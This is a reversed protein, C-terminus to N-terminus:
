KELSYNLNNKQLGTEIEKVLQGSALDFASIKDSGGSVL